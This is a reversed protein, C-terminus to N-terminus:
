RKDKFLTLLFLLVGVTIASDALNFAPWFGVKIFDRVCGVFIRDILNSVGGAFILALSIKTLQQKEYILLGFVVILVAIAIATVDQGLGFAIGKNCVIKFGLLKILIKSIQDASIVFFILLSIVLWGRVENKRKM